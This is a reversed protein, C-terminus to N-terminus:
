LGVLRLARRGMDRIFGLRIHRLRPKLRLRQKVNPTNPTDISSENEMSCLEYQNSNSNSNSPSPSHSHSHSHSNSSCNSHSEVVVSNEKTSSSAIIEHSFSASTYSSDSECSDMRRKLNFDPQTKNLKVDISARKVELGAMKLAKITEELLQSGVNQAQENALNNGEPKKRSYMEHCQTIVHDKFASNETENYIDINMKSLHPKTSIEPIGSVYLALWESSSHVRVFHRAFEMRTEAVYVCGVVSCPISRQSKVLYNVKSKKTNILTPNREDIIGYANKRISDDRRDMECGACGISIDNISASVLIDKLIDEINERMSRKDTPLYALESFITAAIAPLGQTGISTPMVRECVACIRDNIPCCCLTREHSQLQRRSSFIYHCRGCIHKGGLRPLLSNNIEYEDYRKKNNNTNKKILPQNSTDNSNTRQRKCNELGIDPVILSSSSESFSESIEDTPFACQLQIDKGKQEVNSM